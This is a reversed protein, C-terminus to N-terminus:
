LLTNIYESIIIDSFTIINTDYYSDILYNRLYCYYYNVTALRM